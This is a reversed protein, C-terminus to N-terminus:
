LIWVMFTFVAIVGGLDPGLRWGASNGIYLTDNGFGVTRLWTPSTANMDLVDSHYSDLVGEFTFRIRGQVMDQTSVEGQGGGIYNSINSRLFPMASFTGEMTMNATKDDFTANMVPLSFGEWGENSWWPGLQIVLSWNGYETSTNCAPMLIPTYGTSPYGEALDDLVGSLSFSNSTMTSTFNFEDKVTKNEESKWTLPSSRIAWWVPAYLDWTAWSSFNYGPPALVWFINAPDSGNNYEGRDMIGVVSPWKIVETYNQLPSCALISHNYGVEPMIEVTTTANYYSGVWAYLDGFGTVNDPRFNQAANYSPDDKAFVAIPLALLSVLIIIVGLPGHM